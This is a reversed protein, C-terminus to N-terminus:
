GGIQAWTFIEGIGVSVMDLEITGGNSGRTNATAKGPIDVVRVKVAKKVNELIESNWEKFIVEKTM